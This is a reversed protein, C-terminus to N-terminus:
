KNEEETNKNNEVTISKGDSLIKRGHYMGASATFAYVSAMPDVNGLYGSIKGVLSAVMLVGTIYAFTYSLSPGDKDPDRLVPLPVGRENMDFIIQKIKDIPKM